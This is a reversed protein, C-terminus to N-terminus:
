IKRMWRYSRLGQVTEIPMDGFLAMLIKLPYWRGKRLYRFMTDRIKESYILEPYIFRELSQQYHTGAQDPPINNKFTEMVARSALEASRHAFFIGEGLLADAFGAADGVLLINKFTPNPLFSGYPLVYSSITVERENFLDLSSLFKRFATLIDGSNKRKLAFMGIKLKDRNPFVWSYGWDVYDFFLRPHNIERKVADRDIFVEHAAAVNESWDERGFLDVLFSRRIRSNVGDAGIIIDASYSQGSITIVRSKLVDLRAVGEGEIIEAGADRAKKLLHHDYRDRDVFQFPYKINRETITSHKGFVEYRYSEYNIIDEDKLSGASENFVRELLNVTKFTLLGGCLKKRPFISKEIILTKIGAKGLLYGATSGAPGGGVIIVNYHQTDHM